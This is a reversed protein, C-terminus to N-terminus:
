PRQIRARFYGENAADLEFSRSQEMAPYTPANGPVNWLEWGAEPMLSTRREILVSRNAPQDFELQVGEGGSGVNVKWLSEELNPDTRAIWEDENSAGDGDADFGPQAEGAEPDNFQGALWDALSPEDPLEETIWATLLAIAQEDLENSALPPMQGPGRTSIRQLLMSHDVDGPAVVRNEPDGQANVLGGNVLNAEYTPTTVRTDFMANAPGGPQHCQACNVQLYSRVRHELSIQPDDIASLRPLTHTGEVPESFYGAQSLAAIQNGHGGFDRNLQRTNFGLAHGGAPTHCQLCEARSPYRWIQTRLLEGDPDRIELEENAGGESVLTADTEEENWRYTFGHVGGANKVIFRTELRRSSSAVGNTLEIDFHKIWVSGNPFTWNGDRSFAITDEVDPVSFWRRKGAHDSWFPLNLDYAEIGTNVTLTELDSFAGTDSLLTPLPEGTPTNNYILRRISGGLSVILVDGNSPDHGFAVPANATTLQRFESAVGGEYKMAFVRQSGYDAFVYHGYIQSLADGRYVIGGTISNGQATGGPIAPGNNRPYELVPATFEVGAPPTGSFAHNGEFYNWGYNAGAEGIDVEEWAGQGVDAIYLLGTVRDFSMRWPNRLGVAWFETIVEDPSVPAGDFSTAGIFPNDPPVGYHAKNEADRHVAPHDNPELSGPRKDVDIRIIGSFYDRDIRQSNQYDDGGGGEDGLAAYLYGDPGFHLDGGNHNSAQDFQSLLRFESEPLLRNPNEPDVTFRAIRDHRGAGVDSRYDTTYFLYVYNSANADSADFQPHFAIGLLGEESFESERVTSTLDIVETKNPAALNTIVQITGPKEVVFLRNTEGPPTALAVPRTFSLGTFANETGFGFTAPNEPVTLTTNPERVDVAVLQPGTLLLVLPVLLRCSM